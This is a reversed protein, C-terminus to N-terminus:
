LEGAVDYNFQTQLCNQDVTGVRQGVNNFINSVSTGNDFITAIQRGVADYQFQTTHNLADRVQSQHGAPDYTYYTTNTLPDTVSETQGDQYYAYTTTGDPSTKSQVRGNAFYTTSNTSLGTGQEAIVTTMQGPASPDPILNVQVNELRIENTARGVADYETLTGTVGNPDTTLIPHSDADYVTYTVTGTVNTAAIQNGRADYLFSNMNGFKDITYVIKGNLDYFTQNTDGYQDITMIVRNQGDYFLQNTALVLTSGGAPTWLFSINTQNGDADCGFYRTLGNADTANTMYGSVPDFAFSVNTQGNANFIQSVHFNQYGYSTETIVNGNTDFQETKLLVGLNDYSDVTTNGLPDIQNTL